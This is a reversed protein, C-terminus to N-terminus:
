SSQGMMDAHWNAMPLGAMEVASLVLIATVATGLVIWGAGGRGGPRGLREVLLAGALAFAATYGAKMWFPGTRMAQHLDSRISWPGLTMVVFGGVVAALMALAMPWVVGGTAPKLKGTLDGILDDTNKV